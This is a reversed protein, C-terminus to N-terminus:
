SASRPSPIPYMRENLVQLLAEITRDRCREISYETIIRDQLSDHDIDDDLLDVVSRALIEGQGREVLWEVPLLRDVDGVRYAACPVGCAISEAVVNPFGESLSPLVLVDLANLMAQPESTARAVVLRNSVGLENARGLFEKRQAETHDGVALAWADDRQQRVFALVHLFENQGKMPDFRGLMGVVPVDDPIGLEARFRRGAEPDPYFVDTDVGNPIVVVKEAPYGAEIHYRAGAWSNAIILDAFRSARVVIPWLLRTSRSYKSWDMDSSRIGWVLRAGKFWPKLLTCLGNERPLYPHVVDPRSSQVLRVLRWAVSIGKVGQEYLRHIEVGKAQAEDELPGKHNTCAIAVSHGRASLGAALNVMQRESGARDLAGIVFLVKLPGRQEIDREM